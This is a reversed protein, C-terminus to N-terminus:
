QRKDFFPFCGQPIEECYLEMLELIRMVVKTSPTCLMSTVDTVDLFLHCYIGLEKEDTAPFLQIDLDKRGRSPPIHPNRQHFEAIKGLCTYQGDRFLNELPVQTEDGDSLM